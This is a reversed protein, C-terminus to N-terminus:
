LFKYFTGWKLLPSGSSSLMYGTPSAFVLIEVLYAVWFDGPDSTRQQVVAANRTTKGWGKSPLRPKTTRVCTSTTIPFNSWMSEMTYSIKIKNNKERSRLWSLSHSLVGLLCVGKSPPRPLAFLGICQNKTPLNCRQPNNRGLKQLPPM